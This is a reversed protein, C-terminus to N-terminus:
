IKGNEKEITKIIEEYIEGITQNNSIRAVRTNPELYEFYYNYFENMLHLDNRNGWINNENIDRKRELSKEIDTEIFIYLNPVLGSEIHPMINELAFYYENEQGNKLKVYEYGITSPFYRDIFSIGGAQRAKLMKQLDNLIYISKESRLDSFNGEDIVIEEVTAYKESLMNLITSKGSGPLGELSIISYNEIM